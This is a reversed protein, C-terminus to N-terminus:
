LARAILCKLYNSERCSIAVPHDPSQGRRELIQVERREAQSVQALLEEIMDMTILGSCCCFVLIGDPALLKLALGQLRRYGQLAEPIAHRARAFKPPDLIVMGFQRQEAVLRTLHKFVDARTFTISTLENLAANSEALEIAPASSDVCEVSAAGARAAHLGFGGTYCFADLVTRGRALRAAAPRNDRQDLYFGTKQGEALNVRFRVDHGSITLSETPTNGKLPGDQLEVGELKGVGRETRLMIGELGAEQMLIEALMERRQALALSTFQMAAWRDYRDVTLGSLGDGESFVLRCAEGPRDVGLIERRLHIAQRVRDRFFAEDLHQDPAWSYLRVRIKSQGNFLGRAIFNGAHSVLDVEEGDAPNGDISAIAGAFVWPHRGFFPQARRPKLIVRSTSM